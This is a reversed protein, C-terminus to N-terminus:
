SHMRALQSCFGAHWAQLLRCWRLHGVTGVASVCWGSNWQAWTWQKAEMLMWWADIFAGNKGCPPIIEWMKTEYPSGHWVSNHWVAERSSYTMHCFFTISYQQSLEVEVAMGGGNVESTPPWLVLIPPMVKPDAGTFDPAATQKHSSIKWTLIWFFRQKTKFYKRRHKLKEDADCNM